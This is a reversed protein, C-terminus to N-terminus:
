YLRNVKIGDKSKTNGQLKMLNLQLKGGLAETAAKSIIAGGTYPLTIWWVPAFPENFHIIGSYKDVVEVDKLPAWDGSNPAALDEDTYSDRICMESGM